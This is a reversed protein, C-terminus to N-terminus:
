TVLEEGAASGSPIRDRFGAQEGRLEREIVVLHGSGFTGVASEAGTALNEIRDAALHLGAVPAALNGFDIGNRSCRETREADETPTRKM